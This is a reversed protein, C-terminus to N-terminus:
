SVIFFNILHLCSPSSSSRVVYSAAVQLTQLFFVVVILYITSYQFIMLCIIGAVLEAQNWSFDAGQSYHLLVSLLHAFFWKFFSSFFFRLVLQKEIIM